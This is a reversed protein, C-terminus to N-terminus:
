GITTPVGVVARPAGALVRKRWVTYPISAVATGLVFAVVASQAERALPFNTTAILLALGPHRTVTAIALSTRARPDPGGLTHGILLAGAAFLVIVVVSRWLLPFVTAGNAVIVVLVLLLLVIHGANGAWEGVQAGRPGFIPKAMMGIALPLLYTKMLVGAVAAPTIAVDREFAAGVIQLTFPVTAIALLNTVAALTVDYTPDSGVQLLKAPLLPAVASIALLVLAGRMVMPIEFSKALIVALLPVAVFMAAVVQFIWIPRRIVAWIEGPSVQIGVAVVQLVIASTVVARM